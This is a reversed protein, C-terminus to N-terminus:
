IDAKKKRISNTRSITDIAKQFALHSAFNKKNEKKVDM